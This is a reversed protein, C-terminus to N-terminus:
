AARPVQAAAPAPVAGESGVGGLTWAYGRALQELSRECSRQRVALLGGTALRDLVAGRRALGRIASSFAGPDVPALCGSRGSEILEAAAGADIALVPLGSAQAELIAQGFPDTRNPLVLLDASAYVRSLADPGLHGLFTAAAGLRVRLIQPVPDQGALVLHLRPDHDRAILFSEALLDIGDHATLGGAYVVNFVVSARAIGTGGLTERAASASGLAEPAYRGPHFVRVDVGAEWRYIRERTIGLSELSADASPTPSLVTQCQRYFAAAEIRSRDAVGDGWAPQAGATLEVHYSGAVPLGMARAMRLAAIGAPGPTCVHVLDYPRESLADSDVRVVDYGPLGRERLHELTRALAHVPSAEDVIVAVRAPDGDEGYGHTM